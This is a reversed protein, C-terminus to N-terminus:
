MWFPLMVRLQTQQLMVEAIWIPYPDLAEGKNPPLGYSTMKWPISVRGNTRWWDILDARLAKIPLQTLDSYLGTM